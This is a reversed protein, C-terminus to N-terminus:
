WNLMDHQKKFHHYTNWMVKKVTEEANKRAIADKMIATQSNKKKAQKTEKRANFSTFIEAFGEFVSMFAGSKKIPKHEEKKEEFEEGAEKLYRLLEDGLAEMAAKVSGDIVGLM